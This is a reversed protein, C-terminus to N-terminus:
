SWKITLNLNFSIQEPSRGMWGSSIEGVLCRKHGLVELLQVLETCTGRACPNPHQIKSTNTQNLKDSLLSACATCMHVCWEVKRYGHDGIFDKPNEPQTSPSQGPGLPRIQKTESMRKGITPLKGASVKEITRWTLRWLKRINEPGLGQGPWSLNKDAMCQAVWGHELGHM